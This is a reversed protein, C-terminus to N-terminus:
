LLQDLVPVPGAVKSNMTFVKGQLEELQEKLAKNEELIHANKEEQEERLAKIDTTIAEKILGQLEQKKDMTKMEM